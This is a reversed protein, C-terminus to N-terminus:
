HAGAFLATLDCFRVRVRGRFRAWNRTSFGPKQAWTGLFPGLVLAEKESLEHAGPLAFM